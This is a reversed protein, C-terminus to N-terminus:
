DPRWRAMPPAPKIEAITVGTQRAKAAEILAEAHRILAGELAIRRRSIMPGWLKREKARRYDALLHELEAVESATM